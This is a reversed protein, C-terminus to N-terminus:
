GLSLLIIGAVMITAALMRGRMNGEKLLWTGLLAGFLISLERAPAIYSVPATIMATLVLIYALSSLVSIGIAEWRHVRWEYRVEETRTRIAPLLLLTRGFSSGYDLLLPAVLVASVAYKDWLTYTAILLGTMLGYSVGSVATRRRLMEPGGAIAFVGAIILLAGVVALWTPREGLLLVAGVMSLLPGTGRALPYVVSLDGHRYGRQLMLFYALHITASGLMFLLALWGLTPRWVIVYVVIIPAWLVVTLLSFLWTFPIGGRARKALLNWLAHLLAATLVLLLAFATM